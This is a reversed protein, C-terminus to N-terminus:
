HCGHGSSGPLYFIWTRIPCNEPVVITMKNAIYYALYFALGLLTSSDANPKGVACASVESMGISDTVEFSVLVSPLFNIFNAVSTTEKRTTAHLRQEWRVLWLLWMKYIAKKEHSSVINSKNKSTISYYLTLQVDWIQKM